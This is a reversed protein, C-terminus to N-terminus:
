YLQFNSGNKTRNFSLIRMRKRAFKSFKKFPTTTTTTRKTSVSCNRPLTGHQEPTLCSLLEPLKM